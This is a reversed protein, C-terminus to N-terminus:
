DHIYSRPDYCQQIRNELRNIESTYLRVKQTLERRTLWQIVNFGLSLGIIGGLIHFITM